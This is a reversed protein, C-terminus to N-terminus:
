RPRSPSLTVTIRRELLLEGEFRFEFSYPGPHEFTLDNLNFALEFVETPTRFTLRDQIRFLPQGSPEHTGVFEFEGQGQGNGLIVFASLSRRFPLSSATINSFLGILSKKGTEADTIIQDCVLLMASMPLEKM